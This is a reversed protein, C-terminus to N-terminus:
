WLSIINVLILNYKVLTLNYEVLTFSYGVFTFVYDVIMFYMEVIICWKWNCMEQMYYQLLINESTVVYSCKMGNQNCPHNLGRALCLLSNLSPKATYGFSAGCSRPPWCWWFVRSSGDAVFLFFFWPEGDWTVFTAATVWSLSVSEIRSWSTSTTRAPTGFWEKRDGWSDCPSM